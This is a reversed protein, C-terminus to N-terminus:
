LTFENNATQSILFKIYEVIRKDKEAAAKNEVSSKKEEMRTLSMITDAETAAHEPDQRAKVAREIKLRTIESRLEAVIGDYVKRM